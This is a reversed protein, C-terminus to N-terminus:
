LSGSYRESKVPRTIILAQITLRYHRGLGEVGGHVEIKGRLRKRRKQIGVGRARRACQRMWLSCKVLMKLLQLCNHHSLSLMLLLLLLLLLLLMLLLLLLLLIV